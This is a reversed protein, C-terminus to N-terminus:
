FLFHFTLCIKNWVAFFSVQKSKIQMNTFMSAPTLVFNFLNKIQCLNMDTSTVIRVCQVPCIIVIIRNALIEASPGRSVNQVATSRFSFVLLCVNSMKHICYMVLAETIVPLFIYLVYFTVTIVTFTWWVPYCQCLYGGCVKGMHTIIKFFHNHLSLFTTYHMEWGVVLDTEWIIWVLCFSSYILPSMATTDQM